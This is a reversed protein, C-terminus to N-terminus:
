CCFLMPFYGGGGGCCLSLCTLAACINCCQGSQAGRTGGRQQWAGQFSSQMRQAAAQYEANGPDMQAAMHFSQQAQAYWGRRLYVMGRLYHWEAPRDQMRDLAAEAQAILGRTIMERIDSFRADGGAQHFDWQPPAYSGEGYGSSGGERQKVITDYALNIEKLKEQAQDQLPSNAYRDPHYKKVLNRYASKVEEDTASPKVGLVRYPDQM